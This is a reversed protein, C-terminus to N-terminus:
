FKVNLTLQATRGAGPIYHGSYLSDAYVVNNLNSINGKLSVKENFTYETMLDVTSFAPAMWGPNRNASQESRFNIGAGVRWQTNIQYTTWVTGSHVPTLAPREGQRDGAGATPSAIDIAADPMWMYSGFVEWKPTLYGTVDIEVGSAHRKGSLLFATAASDPDTNRENFKTSQFIALRTTFRKDASDLKAGFEINRSQEPATNASLASYSYTDASTNFSTGWSFHYSHLPNPQYLVGVRESWDGITQAYSNSVAGTTNLTDFNGRMSDYRLGALVKWDPTVQLMDQAYIGLNQAEFASTRRTTRAGENISAGDNPNGALITPKTVGSAAFVNKSERAYDIGALIEHKFGWANLKHSFDSQGYLSDLDQIKAQNGRTFITNPGFTDLAVAYSPCQPNTVVGTTANTSSRCFRVTGARQDRTYSGKRITTKLETDADFRHLHSATIYKATGANYDSAMGFYASPDLKENITTDATPSAATPKIWPLGYNMGNNNDLAYLGVSFEDATGIGFRYAAALGKKDISSGSGNNDAKTVMANIRLAADQGTQVNFDGTIRGYNFSGLTTTVENETIARPQKSVQNVAGGTSGRGFLMSASGRLLEIRDNNFTDRDYFAPDRMSDVFIDGSSALSFGRLRIDEEGGEAALFTVGATNHLVDKLTDLNRDDVLKETVVTVSQPIDRLAQNGKGIGTTTARLGDKGEPAVASEKIVIPKLTKTDAPTSAQAMAGLSGMLMLAGLPLHKAELGNAVSHIASQISGVPALPQNPKFAERHSM